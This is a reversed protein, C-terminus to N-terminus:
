AWEAKVRFTEGASFDVPIADGVLGLTLEHAGMGDVRAAASPDRAFRVEAAGGFGACEVFQGVVARNMGEGPEAPRLSTLVLSPMDVHALWGSAGVAPPGKETVVVPSPSVWGVATQMPQERDLALLLEFASGTEGEPSLVVDIMRTGHRQLFPLGGTFLFSRESGLRVELYDPSVPRTYGTLTNQGNVGRFLVARDDRWGFRAGYYSHWPYGSPRHKVDLEIRVELVPRGMWARFRQRFTALVENQPDLIDGESTIEGLAAGANTVTVSRAKMSSGPNFVLQQGFRTTRTRQDRFSRIGGTAADVDAEFFENRVTLNDATKLKPKPPAANGTRPLWAFGLPPLEVVLRARGGAFEAYKIPDAVPVPNPFGDLELAARRTFGCPNFVLVGPQGAASRAQIREALRKAWAAEVLALSSSLPDGPSGPATLGRTFQTPSVGPAERGGARGDSPEDDAAGPSVGRREIDDEAATLTALDAADEGTFPTLSRHLAALTYASDLRRRLRLQRPFGTVPTPNKDHTVRDDLYDAFFEDAPQTGIYDGTVADSFYRALGTWTGLVPALEALALLDAYGAAAPQGKHILAVTPAADSSTAQHLHYALNFFTQPDHAPLPERTFADVGKGDPGPWNVATSRLTPILAQDFSILVAHRYGFHALWSPLQPHYASKRRAYGAPDVGFLAKTVERARRLNWWQSEFPLLADERERYAGCCVDVASPLGPIIKAKLEAFREPAQTALQELTEASALLTLPIGAALSAPWPADLANPDPMVWDLLFMAGPYLSERAVRLKEAAASLPARVDGGETVGKVADTVDAWFGAADLLRDHDQAEYLSDVLLYGYGLGTFLRVTEDPADFRPGTEGREALADKLNAFSERRDATGHFAVAGAARVRDRWDDPQYLHPGQPVCYVAGPLPTDHDYTNSTTPVAASGALAAPHWLAAYGNLWAAVEDAGMQLPYSTPLRYPSLLHLPRTM